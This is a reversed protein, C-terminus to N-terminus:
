FNYKKNYRKFIPMWSISDEDYWIIPLSNDPTNHHFGLLLQCDRFGLANRKSVIDLNPTVGIEKQIIDKILPLGYAFAMSQSDLRNIHPNKPDFHRSNPSFCKFTDDIEIVTDVHDFMKSNSVNKLGDSTGFLMLYFITASPKLKRVHQITNNLGTDGTVQSGSGCFDDIFIYYDLDPHKLKPTGSNYHIIENTNIFLTKSLCNEQRFFYLLHAGSESPNGVGFFRTKREIEKFEKEIINKDISHSNKRRITEIIPYRYLDRYLSKLLQRMQVSGFYIFESLLHLALLKEQDTTFNNLWNKINQKRVRDEWLTENLVKIKEYLREIYVEKEM